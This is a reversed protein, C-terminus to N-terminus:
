YRSYWSRLHYDSSVAPWSEYGGGDSAVLGGSWCRGPYLTLSGSKYCTSHHCGGPFNRRQLMMLMLEKIILADQKFTPHKLQAM